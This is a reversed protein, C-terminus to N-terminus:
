PAGARHSFRPDYPGAGGANDRRVGPIHDTKRDPTRHDHGRGLLEYEDAASDGRRHDHRRCTSVNRHAHPPLTGADRRCPPLRFGTAALGERVTRSVPRVTLACRVWESRNPHAPGQRATAVGHPPAEDRVGGSRASRAVIEARGLARTVSDGRKPMKGGSDQGFVGPRLRGQGARLTATSAKLSRNRVLGTM